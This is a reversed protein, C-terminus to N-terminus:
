PQNVYVSNHPLSPSFYVIIIAVIIYSFSIIVDWNVISKQDFLKQEKKPQNLFKEIFIAVILMILVPWAGFFEIITQVASSWDGAAGYSCIISSGIGYGATRISANMDREVTIKESLDSSVFLIKWALLWVLTGLGGAFIVCWWGPGDGINAGGYCITAGIIFAVVVLLAAHNKRELADDCWYIGMMMLFYMCARAWLLGLLIYFFIYSPSSVVDFSAYKRLLIFLGVTCIVPTLALIIKENKAKYFRHLQFICSYYYGWAFLSGFFSFGLLFLEDDGM